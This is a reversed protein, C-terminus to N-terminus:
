WFSGKDSCTLEAGCNECRLHCPQISTMKFRCRPCEVEKGSDGEDVKSM